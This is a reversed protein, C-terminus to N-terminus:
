CPQGIGQGSRVPEMTNRRLPSNHYAPHPFGSHASTDKVLAIFDFTTAWSASYAQHRWQWKGFPQILHLPKWLLAHSTKTVHQSVCHIVLPLSTLKLARLLWFCLIFVFRILWTRSVTAHKTRDAPRSSLCAKKGEAQCHQVAAGDVFIKMPLLLKSPM